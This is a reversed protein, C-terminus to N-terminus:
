HSLSTITALHYLGIHALRFGRPWTAPASGATWWRRPPFIILRVTLRATTRATTATAAEVAAAPMLPGVFAVALLRTTHSCTSARDPQGSTTAAAFACNSFSWGPHFTLTCYWF